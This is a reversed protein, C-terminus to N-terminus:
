VIRFFVCAKYNFSVWLLLSIRWFWVFCLHIFAVWLIDLLSYVSWYLSWFNLGTTWLFVLCWFIVLGLGFFNVFLNTPQCHIVTRSDFIRTPQVFTSQSPNVNSKVGLHSSLHKEYAVLPYLALINTFLCCNSFSSFKLSSESGSLRSPDGM